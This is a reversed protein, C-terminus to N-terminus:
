KTMMGKIISVGLMVASFTWMPNLIDPSVDYWHLGSITSGAGALLGTTIGLFRKASFKGAGTPTEESFIDIIFKKM